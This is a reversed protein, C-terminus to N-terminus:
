ETKIRTSKIFLGSGTIEALQEIDCRNLDILIM